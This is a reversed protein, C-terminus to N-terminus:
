VFNSIKTVYVSSDTKLETNKNGMTITESCNKNNNSIEKEKRKQKENFVDTTNQKPINVLGLQINYFNSISRKM